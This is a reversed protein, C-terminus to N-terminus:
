GGVGGVCSMRGLVGCSMRGRGGWRRAAKKRWLKQAKDMVSGPAPAYPINYSAYIGAQIEAATVM